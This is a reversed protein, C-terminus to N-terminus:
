PPLQLLPSLRTTAVKALLPRLIACLPIMLTATVACGILLGGLVDSPYHVGVYVRSFALLCALLIALFGGRGYVLLIGAALAGAVMAHDSPFSSDAAHPTLLLVHPMAVFPRPREVIPGLVYASLALAIVSSLATAALGSMSRLGDPRSRIRWWCWILLLVLAVLGGWSAYAAMAGHAWRTEASLQNVQWFLTTDPGM